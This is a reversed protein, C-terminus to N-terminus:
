KTERKSQRERERERERKAHVCICTSTKMECTVHYNLQLHVCTLYTNSFTKGGRREVSDFEGKCVHCVHTLLSKTVQENRM